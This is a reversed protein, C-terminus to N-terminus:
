SVGLYDVVLAVLPAYCSSCLANSGCEPAAGDFTEVAVRGGGEDFLEGCRGCVAVGLPIVLEDSM